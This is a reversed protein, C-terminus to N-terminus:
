VLGRIIWENKDSVRGMLICRKFHAKAEWFICVPPALDFKLLSVCTPDPPM